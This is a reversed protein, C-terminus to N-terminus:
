NTGVLHESWKFRYKSLCASDLAEYQRGGYASSKALTSKSFFQALLLIGVPPLHKM